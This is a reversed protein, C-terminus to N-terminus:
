YYPYKYMEGITQIPKNQVTPVAQIIYPFEMTGPRHIYPIQLYIINKTERTVYLPIACAIFKSCVLFDINSQYRKLIHAM